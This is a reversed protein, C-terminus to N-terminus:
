SRAECSWGSPVQPRAARSASSRSFAVGVGYVSLRVSLYVSLLIFDAPEEAWRGMEDRGEAM